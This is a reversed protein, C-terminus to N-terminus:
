FRKNLPIKLLIVVKSGKKTTRPECTYMYM